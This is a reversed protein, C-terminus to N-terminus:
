APMRWRMSHWVTIHVEDVIEVLTDYLLAYPRKHDCSIVDIARTKKWAEEKNGHPREYLGMLEYITDDKERGRKRRIRKM